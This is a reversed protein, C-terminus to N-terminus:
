EMGNKGKVVRKAMRLARLVLEAEGHPLNRSILYVIKKSKGPIELIPTNEGTKRDLWGEIEWNIQLFHHKERIFHTLCDALGKEMTTWSYDPGLFHSIKSNNFVRPYLRDCYVQWHNNFVKSFEKANPLYKIRMERGTVKQFTKQYIEAVKQWKMPKPQVIHFIQGMAETKGLVSAIGMAVDYGYTMTTLTDAVDKTFVVTRGHLARYLWFEKEMTGLQLREDNYTIYPRIITWNAKGAKRLINEERAKALAYEDTKLYKEDNTTDLLRPTEETIKKGEANAYVRSSSFFVYQGTSKLLVPCRKQFHVTGYIMFDVIVDWPGKALIGDMWADNQANGKLYHVHARDEHSRRSTVFIEDKGKEELIRVLSVGMAGTGGLILIRM